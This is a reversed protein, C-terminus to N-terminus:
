CGHQDVFFFFSYFSSFVGAEILTGNATLEDIERKRAPSSVDVCDVVLFRGSELRIFSM